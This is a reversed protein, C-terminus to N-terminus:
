RPGLARRMVVHTGREGRDVEVEDMAAEIIALGRGRNNGRPARWSGSDRIRVELRGGELSARLTFEAPGPAYAHEVANACAENVALLIETIEATDAGRERLWRRFVRRVESLTEGRAPLVLELVDPLPLNQLALVAVDDAAGEPPVLGDVAVLCAEEPTDVDAVLEQLQAIGESLPVRRREVLGDTYLMLTERPGLQLKHEPWSGFPFAGLPPAPSLEVLRVGHVGIILPPLHGATAYTLAGTDPDFVGYGATAMADDGMTQVFRDVLELARGPGHGELAYSRLATRLQGMLAAARIGHGVVDGIAVGVQGRPLEIVDYWDGGVEGRAPLYRAAVSLGPPAPVRRPLLSRQLVMAVRHEHELASFLRAREIVPAARAAALQLVAADREDFIRPKLSGVHLVGILDGEVIMPVGLLSRIGKERLIPNLIDAHDVEAIAIPVRAAAIRGAFGRGVPITVGQEVEEEIGRAARAVLQDAEPDLLLIAITDVDLVQRVRELLEHLLPELSLESLAPDSLRYLNRVQQSPALTTARLVV